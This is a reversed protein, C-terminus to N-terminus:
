VTEKKDSFIFFTLFNSILSAVVWSRMWSFIFDTNDSYNIFALILTILFATTLNKLIKLIVKRASGDKVKM